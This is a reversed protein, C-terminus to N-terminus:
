KDHKESPLRACKRSAGQIEKTNVFPICLSDLPFVVSICPFNVEEWQAGAHAVFRVNTVLFAHCICIKSSSKKELCTSTDRGAQLGGSRGYSPKGPNPAPM